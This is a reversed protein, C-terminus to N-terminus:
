AKGDEIDYRLRIDDVSAPTMGGHVAQGVVSVPALACCGVCAVREISYRGDETVEGDSIDLKRQWEEFIEQGGKIHCATGLCVRVHHDGPPEFRFQNYFTAVGYIAAKPVDLRAAISEMAETPIYGLRDQVAQLLSVGHPRDCGTIAAAIEATMQADTYKTTM